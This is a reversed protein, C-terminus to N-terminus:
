IFPNGAKKLLDISDEIKKCSDLFGLVDKVSLNFWEGTLLDFDADFNPSYKRSSMKSHLIRELKYPRVTKYVSILTLSYPSGTQLQKIRKKSNKSVGIKYLETQGLQILYVEYHKKM